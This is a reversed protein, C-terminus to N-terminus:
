EIKSNDEDNFDNNSVDNTVDFQQQQKKLTMLLDTTGMQQALDYMQSRQDNYDGDIRQYFQDM